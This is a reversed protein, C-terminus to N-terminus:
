KEDERDEEGSEDPEDTVEDDDSGRDSGDSGDSEGNPTPCSTLTRGAEVVREEEQMGVLRAVAAIKDKEKLRMIRVGM